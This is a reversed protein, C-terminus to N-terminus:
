RVRRQNGSKRQGLGSRGYANWTYTNFTDNLLNGSADYQVGNWNAMYQNNASNSYTPLWSSNGSKSINGFADYSFTQAWISGCNAGSSRNLDDYSYNCTQNDQSNFPDTIALQKLTGNSNWQLKGVASQGNVNFSYQTMRGTNPDYQYTDSDLSGFTVGTLAGLPAMSTGTSYTVSTVPSQGASTVSAPRGETDVGYTETPILSAQSSNFLGLTHLGGNAWYSVQSHYYGGSHPTFEYVDTLEGRPSYSFWEDTLIADNTYCNDTAAEIVRGLTNALGAPKTSGPYGPSNDYRLRSCYTPSNNGFDTLRHLSDYYKRICNGAADTIKVLDGGSTYAGYGCMTSDTDYFYQKAGSEPNTESTMRGLWDYTFTRTQQGSSPTQVCDTTLPQTTNQCSGLLRGLADYKYRTWYGTQSTAQGCTAVGPLTTSIECVSSLRGLGDYEFQKSFTKAPGTVQLVDNKTYTYSVTGGGGDTLLTPRGLADYVTTTGPATSNGSPSATASYPTTVRNPQGLSNYDTESTDYNQSTPGQKRQSFIPRGLGDVTTLFDSASSGGNFNQLATEV